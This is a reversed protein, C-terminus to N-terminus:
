KLVVNSGSTLTINDTGSEINSSNRAVTVANAGSQYVAVIDGASPSSPLTITKTGGSSDVIYGRGSVATLDATVVTQWDVSGARGFGSQTGSNTITVGAPITFTDGSTGLTVANGTRSSLKNVKIESM